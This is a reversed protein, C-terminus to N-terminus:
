QQHRQQRLSQKGKIPRPQAQNTVKLLSFSGKLKSDRYDLKLCELLQQYSDTFIEEAALAVLEYLRKLNIRHTQATKAYLWDSLTLFRYFAEDMLLWKLSHSFRGSNGIMDWYRAFRNIRQMQEFSVEKNSLISYPPVPSFRMDFAEIHRIIPSGRLRKLIGMQIEHPRCAYLQNFSEAFSELTEGPLGFILDAHIHAHTNERLWILNQKSKDNNQRRSIRKQVETNFTQIGVEFQLSGEPFLMLKQKLAEPLHDPIVEFHLFLDEDKKDLFFDLVRLSSKIKLNFTRDVFKFHRAGRQYLTEMQSLFLDLDFPYATKDLSSLCFECKFPCGRSAEIYTVRHQIDEQNYWQYPYELQDLQFSKSHLIKKTPAKGAIIDRCLQAFSLDATGKIVYDSIRYLDQSETEYSIEPGGLIIKIEPAVCKLLQIVELTQQCNWIYVGFGIIKPSDKLLIEIIDIPRQNITFEQIKARDQLEALNAYLYRLGLSAHIYKANLTTLLIM